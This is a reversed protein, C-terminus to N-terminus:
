HVGRSEDRAPLEIVFRAGPHDPQEVRISGGHLQVIQRAVFLGLGLGSVHGQGPAQHFREFIQQRQEPAVGSGQDTVSICVTAPTREIRIAITSGAPSFKAANTILITLVQGIRRPDVVVVADDVHEPGDVGIHHTAAFPQDNLRSRVLAVLNCAAPRLRFTQTEIQAIDVLLGVLQALQTTQREIAQLAVALRDPEIEQKRALDRQLMQAYVRLSTVPTKLEHAAAM